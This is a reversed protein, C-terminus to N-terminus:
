PLRLQLPGESFAVNLKAGARQGPSPQPPSTRAPPSRAAAAHSPSGVHLPVGPSLTPPPLAEGTDGGGGTGIAPGMGPPMSFFVELKKEPGEFVDSCLTETDSTEPSSEPLTQTESLM